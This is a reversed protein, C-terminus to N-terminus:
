GWRNKNRSVKVSIDNEDFGKEELMNLWLRIADVHEEYGRNVMVTSINNFSTLSGESVTPLFQTRLVPQAVFFKEPVGEEDHIVRDILQVGSITFLTKVKDNVIGLPERIEFGKSGFYENLDEPSKIADRGESGLIKNEVDPRDESLKLNLIDVTSKLRDSSNMAKRNIDINEFHNM